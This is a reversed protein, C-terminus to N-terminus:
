ELTVHENFTGPLAINSSDLVLIEADLFSGHNSAVHSVMFLQSYHGSDLMSRILSMIQDRHQEDFGEGPEDMFLPYELMELYLMVTLKFAINIMEMQGKSARSVDKTVNDPSEVYVPFKYDLDSKEFGCELIKMEHTWVSAIITNMQDIIRFIADRLRDAIIGETPSLATALMYFSKYRVELIAVERVIDDVIGSLTQHDAMSKQLSAMEIHRQAADHDLLKNKIADVGKFMLQNFQGERLHWNELRLLHQQARTEAQRLGNMIRNTEQLSSTHDQVERELSRTKETLLNRDGMLRQAEIIQELQKCRAQLSEKAITTEVAREWQPFIWLQQNPHTELLGRDLILEWLPQLRPYSTVYGRFRGWLAIYGNAEELYLKVRSHDARLKSLTETRGAISNDLFAVEKPDVGEKWIHQCRPCSSDHTGKLHSMRDNMRNLEGTIQDISRIIELEANEADEIAKRSYRRDSNDPFTNFLNMLDPLVSLNDSRIMAGDHLENFPEVSPIAALDMQAQALQEPADTINEIERAGFSALMSELETFDRSAREIHIRHFQAEEERERVKAHLDDLSRYSGDYLFTPADQVIQRAEVELERFSTDMRRSIEDFPPTNPSINTLLENLELRLEEYRSRLGEIAPLKSLAEVEQALRGQQHKYAGQADRGRSRFQNYVGLAYTWDSESLVTIWERRDQPGMETFRLRGTLLDHLKATYRFEDKALRQQVQYTGGENLEVNDKLFSHRDGSKFDSRLVYTSAGHEIEILKYGGPKYNSHHGPLPSLEDLMSSKGSGNTGLILQQRAQPRYSVRTLRALRFRKYGVLEIFTIKM